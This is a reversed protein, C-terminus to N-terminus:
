AVTGVRYRNLVADVYPPREDSPQGDYLLRLMIKIATKLDDPVNAADSTPSVSEDVSFGATFTVTVAGSVSRPSPWSGGYVPEITALDGANMVRYNSASWTQTVGDADVYEVADVSILPGLELAIRNAPFGDLTLKWQQSVLCIGIGHPGDIESVAARILATIDADSAAGDVRLFDKADALTVPLSSPESVRKYRRWNM